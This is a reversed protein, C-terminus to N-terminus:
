RKNRELFEDISKMFENYMEEADGVGNHIAENMETLSEKLFHYYFVPIGLKEFDKPTFTNVFKNDDLIISTKMVMALNKAVNLQEDTLLSEPTSALQYIDGKMLQCVEIHEQAKITQNTNNCSFCMAALLLVVAMFIVNENKM